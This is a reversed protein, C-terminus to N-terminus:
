ENNYDDEIDKNKQLSYRKKSLPRKFLARDSSFSFSSRIFSDSFSKYRFPFLPVLYPAGLSKLRLLHGLIFMIGIM